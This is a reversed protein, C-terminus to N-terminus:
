MEDYTTHTRKPKKPPAFPRKSGAQGPTTQAPSPGITDRPSIVRLAQGPTVTESHKRKRASALGSYIDGTSADDSTSTHRSSATTGESPPKRKVNQAAAPATVRLQEPATQEVENDSASTDVRGDIDLNMRPASGKTRSSFMTQHSREEKKAKAAERARRKAEELAAKFSGKETGDCERRLGGMGAM